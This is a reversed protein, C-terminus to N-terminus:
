LTSCFELYQSLLLTSVIHSWETCLMKDMSLIINKALLVLEFTRGNFLGRCLFVHITQPKNGYMFCFKSRLNLESWRSDGPRNVSVLFCPVSRPRLLAIGTHGHKQLLWELHETPVCCGKSRDELKSYSRVLGLLGELIRNILKEGM